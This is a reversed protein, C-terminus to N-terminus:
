PLVTISVEPSILERGNRDVGRAMFTHTGPLLIWMERVTAPPDSFTAIAQGDV